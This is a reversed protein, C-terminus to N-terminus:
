DPSIGSLTLTYTDVLQGNRRYFNFTLSAQDAEVLM